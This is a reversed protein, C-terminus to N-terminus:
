AISVMFAEGRMMVVRRTYSVCLCLASKNVDERWHFSFRSKTYIESAPANLEGWGRWAWLLPEPIFFFLNKTRMRMTFIPRRFTM